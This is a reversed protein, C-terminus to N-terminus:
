NVEENPVSNPCNYIEYKQDKQWTGSYAGVRCEVQRTCTLCDEGWCEKAIRKDAKIKRFRFIGNIHGCKEAHKHMYLKAAEYMVESMTVDFASCYDKLAAHENDPMTVQVKKM